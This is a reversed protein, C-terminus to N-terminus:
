LRLVLVQDISQLCLNVTLPGPQLLPALSGLFDQQELESPYIQLRVESCWASDDTVALCTGFSVSKNDNGIEESVVVAQMVSASEKGECDEGYRGLKYSTLWIHM